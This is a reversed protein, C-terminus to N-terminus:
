MPCMRGTGGPPLGSWRHPQLLYNAALPAFAMEQHRLATVEENVARLRSVEGPRPHTATASPVLTGQSTSRGSRGPDTGSVWFVRCCGHQSLGLPPDVSVGGLM